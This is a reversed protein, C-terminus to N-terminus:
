RAPEQAPLRSSIGPSEAPEVRPLSLLNLRDAGRQALQLRHIATPKTQFFELVLRRNQKGSLLSAPVRVRFSFHARESMIQMLRIHATGQFLRTPFSRLERPM